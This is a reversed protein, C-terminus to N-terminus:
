RAAIMEGMVRVPSVCGEKNMVFVKIFKILSEKVTLKVNM